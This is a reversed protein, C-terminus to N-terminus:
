PVLYGIEDFLIHKGSTVPLHENISQKVTQRIFDDRLFIIHGHPLDPVDDAFVFLDNEVVDVSQWLEERM